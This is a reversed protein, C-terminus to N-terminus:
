SWTETLGGRIRRWSVSPSQGLVRVNLLSQTIAGHSRLSIARTFKLVESARCPGTPWSYSLESAAPCCFCWRGGVETLTRNSFARCSSPDSGEWRAEAASGAAVQIIEEMPSPTVWLQNNFLICNSASEPTRFVSGWLDREDLLRWPAWGGQDAALSWIELSCMQGQWKMKFDIQGAALCLYCSLIFPIINLGM